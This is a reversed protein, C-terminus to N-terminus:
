SCGQLDRRHLDLRRPVAGSGRWKWQEVVEPDSQKAQIWRVPRTFGSELGLRPDIPSCGRPPAGPTPAFRSGAGPHPASEGTPETYGPKILARIRALMEGRWDGLDEIRTDILRAPTEDNEPGIQRDM